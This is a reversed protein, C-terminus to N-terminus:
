APPQDHGLHLLARRLKAPASADLVHARLLPLRVGCTQEFAPEPIREVRESAEQCRLLLGIRALPLCPEALVDLGRVEMLGRLAEPARGYLRGSASWVETRDDAVLRFGYDLARLMLDSKGAGASGTILAGIWARDLRMAVLGAHLIM